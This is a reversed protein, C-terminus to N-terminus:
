KAKKSWCITYFLTEKIQTDLFLSTFYYPIGIELSNSFISFEKYPVWAIIKRMGGAERKKGQLSVEM